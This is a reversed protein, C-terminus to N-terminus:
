QTEVLVSVTDGDDIGEVRRVTAKVPLLYTGSKSDPFISTRWNTKGIKAEM